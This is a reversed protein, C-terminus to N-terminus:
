ASAGSEPRWAPVLDTRAFDEGKFLLTDARAKALGYVLCDGFNLGDGDGQKGYALFGSRAFRAQAADFPLVEVRLADLLQDLLDAEPYRRRGRLVLEAEVSVISSTVAAPADLIMDEFTEREAEGLLIAVIASTDVVM